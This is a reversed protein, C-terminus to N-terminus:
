RVLGAALLAHQDFFRQMAEDNNAAAVVGVETYDRRFLTWRKLDNATWGIILALGVSIAASVLVSADLWNAAVAWIVELTILGFAVLWLRSWIAWLASFFFAPWSFGEKVLIVDRDLREAPTRVHVTFLKM